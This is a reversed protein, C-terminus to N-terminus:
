GNIAAKAATRLARKIRNRVRNRISFYAPFLFPQAPTGPHFDGIAGGARRGAAVKRVQGSATTYSQGTARPSTGFEVFRAYWGPSARSEVFVGVEVAMSNPDSMGDPDSKRSNVRTGHRIEIASRLEGTEVPALSKARGEIEQAGLNLAHSVEIRSREPMARFVKRVGEIGTVIRRRAM